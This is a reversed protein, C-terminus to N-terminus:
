PKELIANKVISKNSAEIVPNNVSDLSFIVNGVIVDFLNLFTNILCSLRIDLFTTVLLNVFDVFWIPFYRCDM